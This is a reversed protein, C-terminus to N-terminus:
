ALTPIAVCRRVSLEKIHELVTEASVLTVVSDIYCMSAVKAHTVTYVIPAPDAIGTTEILLFDFGPPSDAGEEITADTSPQLLTRVAAELDDNVTCCLCGNKLALSGGVSARADILQPFPGRTVAYARTALHHVSCKM